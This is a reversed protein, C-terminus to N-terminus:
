RSTSLSVLEWDGQVNIEAIIRPTGWDIQNVLPKGLQQRLLGIRNEDGNDTSTLQVVANVTNGNQSAELTQHTLTNRFKFSDDPATLAANSLAGFHYENSLGDILIPNNGKEAQSGFIAAVMARDYKQGETVAFKEADAQTSLTPAGTSGANIWRDFRSILAGVYADATPYEAASITYRQVLQEQSLDSEEKDLQIDQDQRAQKKAAQQQVPSLSDSAASSPQSTSSADPAGCASLATATLLALGGAACRKSRSSRYAAPGRVLSVFHQM